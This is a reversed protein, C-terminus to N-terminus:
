EYYNGKRQIHNYMINYEIALSIYGVKWWGLAVVCPMAECGASSPALGGVLIGVATLGEVGSTCAAWM